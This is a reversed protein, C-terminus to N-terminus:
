FPIDDEAPAARRPPEDKDALRRLIAVLLLCADAAIGVDTRDPEDRHKIAQAQRWAANALTRVHEFRDGPAVSRVFYSIRQKADNAHPEEEGAPLHRSADFVARGLAEMLSVCQLGAAKFDDVDEGERVRRRLKGVKADVDPWGTPGEETPTALDHHGAALSDLSDRVPAYLGAIYARRDAWAPMSGDSWKGYWEWLRRHKNPNKIGLRKLVASLARYQRQYDGDVAQIRPGGTAVSVMLASVSDVLLEAAELDPISSENRRIADLGAPTLEDSDDEEDFSDPFTFGV